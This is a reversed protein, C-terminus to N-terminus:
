HVGADSAGLVADTQVTVSLPGAGAAPTLTAIVLEAGLTRVAGADQYTPAPDVLAMNETAVLPIPALWVAVRVAEKFPELWDALMASTELVGLVATLESCHPALASEEFPAVVQVTVNFWAGGPAPTITVIPSLAEGTNAAGACNFMEGAALLAVNWAVVPM